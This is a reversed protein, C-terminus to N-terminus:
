VLDAYGPRAHGFRIESPNFDSRGTLLRILPTLGAFLDDVVLQGVIGGALLHDLRLVADNDEVVFKLEFMAGAMKHYKVAIQIAQELTASSMM